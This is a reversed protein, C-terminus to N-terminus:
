GRKLQALALEVTKRPSDPIKDPITFGGGSPAVRGRVSVAASQAREHTSQQQTPLRAQTLQQFNGLNSAGGRITLCARKLADGYSLGPLTELLASVLPKVRQLVVEDDHLEPYLYRGSADKENKVAQGEAIVPAVQRNLESDEQERFKGQILNVEQRLAKVTPHNEIDFGASPASVGRAGGGDAGILQQIQQLTEQPIGLDAGLAIWTPKATEPTTLKKHAAALGALAQPVTLNRAGWEAVYPQVAEMIGRNETVLKSLAQDGQVRRAEHEKFMRAAAARLRKPMKNFVEKDAANLRNPPAVDEPPEPPQVPPQLSPPPVLSDPKQAKNKIPESESEEPDKNGDKELKTKEEKFAREVTDRISEEGEETAGSDGSDPEATTEEAEDEIVEELPSREEEQVGSLNEGRPPM